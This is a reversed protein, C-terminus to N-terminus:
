ISHSPHEDCYKDINSNAGNYHECFSCLPYPVCDHITDHSKECEKHAVKSRQKSASYSLEYYSNFYFIFELVRCIEKNKM